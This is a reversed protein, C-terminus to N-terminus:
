ATVSPAPAPRASRIDFNNQKLRLRIDNAGRVHSLKEHIEISRRAHWEAIAHSKSALSLAVSCEYDAHLQPPMSKLTRGIADYAAVLENSNSRVTPLELIALLVASKLIDDGSREALRLAFRARELGAVTNGDSIELQAYTLVSCRNAYLYWDHPSQITQEIRELTVRADALRGQSLRVRAIGDLNANTFEGRTPLTAIAREFHRVAQEYEGVAHHLNGMNGLSARLPAAAGSETAATVASRGFIRASPIDSQLLAIGFRTNWIHAEIILNPDANLIESAIMAHRAARNLFGRKAELQGVFLHLLATVQPDGLKTATTRTRNLLPVVAEFGSQQAIVALLLVNSLCVCEMDDCREALLSSKQLHEVANSIAGNEREIKGLIYEARARMTVSARNGNLLSHLISRSEALRGIQELLSAKVIRMRLRQEEGWRYSELKDLAAVPRGARALRNIDDFPTM